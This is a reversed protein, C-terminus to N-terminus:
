FYQIKLPFYHFGNGYHSADADVLTNLIELKSIEKDFVFGM